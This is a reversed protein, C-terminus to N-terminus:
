VSPVGPPLTVTQIDTMGNMGEVSNGRDLTGLRARTISVSSDSPVMPIESSYGDFCSNIRQPGFRASECLPPLELDM